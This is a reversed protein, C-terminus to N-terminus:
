KFGLFNVLVDFKLICFKKKTVTKGVTHHRAPQNAPHGSPQVATHGTPYATAHGNPNRTPDDASVQGANQHHAPHIAPHGASDASHGASHIDSLNAQQLDLYINENGFEDQDITYNVKAGDVFNVNAGGTDDYDSM